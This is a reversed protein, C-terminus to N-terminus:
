RKARRETVATREIPGELRLLWPAPIPDLTRLAVIMNQRERRSVPTIIYLAVGDSLPSVVAGPLHKRM